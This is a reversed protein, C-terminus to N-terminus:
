VRCVQPRLPPSLSYSLSRDLRTPFLLTPNINTNSCPPFAFSIRALLGGTGFTLWGCSFTHFRPISPTSHPTFHGLRTCFTANYNVVVRRRCSGLLAPTRRQVLARSRESSPVRRVMWGDAGDLVTVQVHYVGNVRTRHRMKHYEQRISDSGQITRLWSASEWEQAGNEPRM